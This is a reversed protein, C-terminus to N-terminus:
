TQKWLYFFGFWALNQLLPLHRRITLVMPKTFGKAVLRTKYHEISGNSNYKVIFVWKYGVPTKGKPTM